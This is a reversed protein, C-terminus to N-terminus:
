QQEFQKELQESRYTYSMDSPSQAQAQKDAVNNNSESPSSGNACTALCSLLEISQEYIREPIPIPKIETNNVQISFIFDINGYM